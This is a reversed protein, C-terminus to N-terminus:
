YIAFKVLQGLGGNLFVGGGGAGGGDTCVAPEFAFPRNPSRPNFPQLVYSLSVELEM